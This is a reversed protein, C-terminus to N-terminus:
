ILMTGGMTFAATLALTLKLMSSIILSTTTPEWISNYWTQQTYAIPACLKIKEKLKTMHKFIGRLYWSIARSQLSIWSFKPSPPPYERKCGGAGPAGTLGRPQRAKGCSKLSRKWLESADSCSGKHPHLSSQMSQRACLILMGYQLM